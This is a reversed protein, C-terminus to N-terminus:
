QFIQLQMARIMQEGFFATLQKASTTCLDGAVIISATPIIACQGNNDFYTFSPANATFSLDGAGVILGSGLNIIDVTNAPDNWEYIIEIDNPDQPSSFYYTITFQTVTVPACDQDTNFNIDVQPRLANCQAQSESFSFFLGILLLLFVGIVRKPKSKLITIM